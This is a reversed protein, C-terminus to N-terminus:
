KQLKKNTQNLLEKLTKKQIKVLKVYDQTSSMTLMEMQIQRLKPMLHFDGNVM